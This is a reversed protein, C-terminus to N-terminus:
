VLEFLQSVKSNMQARGGRKRRLGAWAHGRAVRAEGSESGFPGARDAGTHWQEFLSVGGARTADPDRGAPVRDLRRGGTPALGWSATERRTASGRGSGGREKREREVAGVVAGSL